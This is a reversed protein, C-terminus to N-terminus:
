LLPAGNHVLDALPIKSGVGPVERVLRPVLYGPLRHRLEEGLWLARTDSVAFHAAGEVPDLQHLYYPLVGCAFLREGLTCLTEVADNVGRLLVSQNLVALDAGRLRRLADEAQTGLERPHNAHIVVLTAFRTGALLRCLADTVRSPLVVPLRTHIRLRKLHPIEHLRGILEGLRDDDLMLPDGGSLIVESIGPDEAILALAVATRDSTLGLSAYPFHRRFCYRCHVACGGTAILLARGEYKRLLGHGIDASIDGVPDRSFGAVPLREARLPLVQRLLPDRPDGPTMLAAFGRPVLMRFGPAEVDLDPIAERNLGLASLLAAPHRYAEALDQKWDSRRDSSGAPTEDPKRASERTSTQCAAISRPVM